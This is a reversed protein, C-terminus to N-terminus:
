ESDIESIIGSVLQIFNPKSQAAMAMVQDHDIPELSDPVAMDTVCCIGLVKMGCHVAVITEPITSMGITDAGLKRVMALEAKSLFNPGSVASHVGTKVEINREKAVRKGLAILEKPYAKSMDPFRPGFEELNAGILPNNGTLNIHDEIFMFNGPQFNGNLAGCANTIIVSHVGLLRMVRVPFTVAQMSYGEYYHFRGQMAVVRKGELHGIM